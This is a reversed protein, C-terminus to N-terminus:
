RARGQSDKDVSSGETIVGSSTNWTTFAALINGTRGTPPVRLQEGRPGQSGGRGLGLWKSRAHLHSDLLPSKSYFKFARTLSVLRGEWGM